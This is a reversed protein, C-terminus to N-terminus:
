ENYRAPDGDNIKSNAVRIHIYTCICVYVCACMCEQMHVYHGIRNRFETRAHLYFIHCQATGSSWVAM